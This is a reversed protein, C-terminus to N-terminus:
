LFIPIPQSATSSSFPDAPTTSAMSALTPIDLAAAIISTAFAASTFSDAVIAVSDVESVHDAGGSIADASSRSEVAAVASSTAVAQVSMPFRAFIASIRAAMSAYLLASLMTAIPIGAMTAAMGAMTEAISRCPSDAATCSFAIAASLFRARSSPLRAFITVAPAIGAMTAAMFCCASTAATCSFAHLANYLREFNDDFM